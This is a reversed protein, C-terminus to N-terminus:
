RRPRWECLMRLSLDDVDGEYAVGFRIQASDRLSEESPGDDYPERAGPPYDAEPMTWVVRGNRRVVQPRCLEEYPANLPGTWFSRVWVTVTPDARGSRDFRLAYYDAGWTDVDEAQEAYGAAGRLAAANPSETRVETVVVADDRDTVVLTVPFTQARSRLNAENARAMDARSAAREVETRVRRVQRRLADHHSEIWRSRDRAANDLRVALREAARELESLRQQLLEAKAELERRARALAREPETSPAEVFEVLWADGSRRIGRYDFRELRTRDLLAHFAVTLARAQGRADESALEPTPSPGEMQVPVLRSALRGPVHPGVSVPRGGQGAVIAAAGGAAAVLVSLSVLRTALRRRRRARGERVVWGLDGPPVAIRDLGDFQSRVDDTM